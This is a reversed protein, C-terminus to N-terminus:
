QMIVGFMWYIKNEVRVQTLPKKTSILSPQPKGQSRGLVYLLFHHHMLSVSFETSVPESLWFHGYCGLWRCYGSLRPLLHMPPKVLFASLSKLSQLNHPISLLGCSRPPRFFDNINPNQQYHSDLPFLQCQLHFHNQHTLLGLGLAPTYDPNLSTLPM